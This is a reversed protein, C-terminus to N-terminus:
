SVATGVNESFDATVFVNEVFYLSKQGTDVESDM